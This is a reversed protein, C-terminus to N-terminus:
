YYYMTMEEKRKNEDVSLYNNGNNSSILQKIYELDYDLATTIEKQYQGFCLNVKENEWHNVDVLYEGRGDSGHSLNILKNNHSSQMFNQFGGMIIEEQKGLSGDSSSCCSGESGFMVVSEGISNHYQM